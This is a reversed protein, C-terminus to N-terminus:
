VKLYMWNATQNRSRSEPLMYAKLIVTQEFFLQKKFITNYITSPLINPM